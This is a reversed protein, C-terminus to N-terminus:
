NGDEWAQRSCAPAHRSRTADAVRRALDAATRAYRPEYVANSTSTVDPQNLHRYLDIAGARDGRAAATRALGDRVPLNNVMTVLPPYIAFSSAVHYEAARFGTEADDLRGERLATESALAAGPCYSSANAAIIVTRFRPDRASTGTANTGM